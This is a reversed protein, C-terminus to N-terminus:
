DSFGCRVNMSHPGDQLGPLLARAEKYLRTSLSRNSIHASVRAHLCTSNSQILWHRKGLYRALSLAASQKRLLLLFPMASKDTLPPKRAQSTGHIRSGKFERPWKFRLDRIGM